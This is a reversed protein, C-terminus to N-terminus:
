VFLSFKTSLFKRLRVDPSRLTKTIQVVGPKWEAPNISRSVGLVPGICMNFNQVYPVVGVCMLGRKPHYCYDLEHEGYSPTPLDSPHKQGNCVDRIDKELLMKGNAKFYHLSRRLDRLRINSQSLHGYSYILTTQLQFLRKCFIDAIKKTDNLAEVTGDIPSFSVHDVTGM